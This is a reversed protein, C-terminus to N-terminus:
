VGEVDVTVLGGHQKAKAAALADAGAGSPEPERYRPDDPDADTCVPCALVQSQDTYDPVWTTGRCRECVSVSSPPQPNQTLLQKENKTRLEQNGPDPNGPDPNGPDPYGPNPATTSFAANGGKDGDQSDPNPAVPCEYVLSDTAWQGTVPDRYRTRVLYGHTELESLATYCADRGEVETGKAVARGDCTWDDPKALLWTLIGRARFSLRNDEITTREIQAYKKRRAIRITSM